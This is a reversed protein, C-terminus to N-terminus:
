IRKKWVEENDEGSNGKKRTVMVVVKKVVCGNGEEECVRQFWSEGIWDLRPKRYRSQM